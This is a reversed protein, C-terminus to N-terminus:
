RFPDPRPTPALVPASLAGLVHVVVLTMACISASIFCLLATIQHLATQANLTVSTGLFLWLAMAALVVAKALLFKPARHAGVSM